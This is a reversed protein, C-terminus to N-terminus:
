VFFNFCLDLNFTGLRKTHRSNASPKGKDADRRKGKSQVGSTNLHTSQLACFSCVVFVVWRSYSIHTGRTSTGM